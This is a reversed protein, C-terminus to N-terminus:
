LTARVLDMALSYLRSEKVGKGSGLNTGRPSIATGLCSLGGSVVGSSLALELDLFSHAPLPSEQLPYPSDIRPVVPIMSELGTDLRM